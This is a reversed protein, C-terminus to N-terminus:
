FTCDDIAESWYITGGSGSFGPNPARMDFFTFHNNFWPSAIWFSNSPSIFSCVAVATAEPGICDNVIFSTPLSVM